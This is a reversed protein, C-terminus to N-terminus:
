WCEQAPTHRSRRPRRRPESRSAPRIELEDEDPDCVGLVVAARRGTRRSAPLRAGKAPGLEPLDHYLSVLLLSPTLKGAGLRGTFSSRRISRSGSAIPLVAAPRQTSAIRSKRSAPRGVARAAHAIGYSYRASVAMARVAVESVQQACRPCRVGASASRPRSSKLRQSHRLGNSRLASGSSSNSRGLFPASDAFRM